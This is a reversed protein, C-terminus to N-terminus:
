PPQSPFRCTSKRIEWWCGGTGNGVRGGCLEEDRGEPANLVHPLFLVSVLVASAFFSCVPFQFWLREM